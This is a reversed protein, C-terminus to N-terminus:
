LLDLAEVGGGAKQQMRLQEVALRELWRIQWTTQEVPLKPAVETESPCIQRLMLSSGYERNLVLHLDSNHQRAIPKCVTLRRYLIAM